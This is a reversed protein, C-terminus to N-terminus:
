RSRPSNTWIHRIHITRCHTNRRTIDVKPCIEGIQVYRALSWLIRIEWSSSRDLGFSIHERPTTSRSKDREGSVYTRRAKSLLIGNVLISDPRTPTFEPQHQRVRLQASVPEMIHENIVQGRRRRPPRTMNRRRINCGQASTPWLSDAFRHSSSSLFHLAESPRNCSKSHAGTAGRDRSM